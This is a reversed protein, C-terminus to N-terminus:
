DFLGLMIKLLGKESGGKLDFTLLSDNATQAIFM